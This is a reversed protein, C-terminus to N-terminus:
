RPRRHARGDLDVRIRTGRGAAGSGRTGRAPIPNSTSRLKPSTNADCREKWTLAGPDTWPTSPSREHLGWPRHGSDRPAHLVAPPSPQRRDRHAPICGTTACESSPTLRVCWARERTEVCWCCQTGSRWCASPTLASCASASGPRSSPRPQRLARRPHRGTPLVKIGTSQAQQAPSSCTDASHDDDQRDATARLTASRRHVLEAPGLRHDPLDPACRRLCRHSRRHPPHDDGPRPRDARPPLRLARERGRGSAGGPTSLTTHPPRPPSCRRDSSSPSSRWWNPSSWRAAATFVAVKAVLVKPRRPAASFTARITGTGYEGSIVLVGLVGIVLQAVNVGILSLQTPDFIERDTADPVLPGENRGNGPHRPRRRPVRRHRVVLDDVQRHPAQDVGLAGSRVPPLPGAAAHRAEPTIRPATAITM